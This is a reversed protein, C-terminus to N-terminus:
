GATGNRRQARKKCKPSCYRAHSRSATFRQDCEECTLSSATVPRKNRRARDAETILVHGCTFCRYGGYPRGHDQEALLRIQGVFRPGACKCDGLGDAWTAGATTRRPRDDDGLRPPSSGSSIARRRRGNHPTRPQPTRRVVPTAEPLGRITELDRAFSYRRNLIQRAAVIWEFDREIQRLFEVPEETAAEYQRRLTDAESDDLAELDRSGLDEDWRNLTAFLDQRISAALVMLAALADDSEGRCVRGLEVIPLGASTARVEGCHADYFAQYARSYQKTQEMGVPDAM